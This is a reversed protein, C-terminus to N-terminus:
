HHALGVAFSFCVLEFRNVDRHVKLFEKINGNAMWESVMAFHNDGM